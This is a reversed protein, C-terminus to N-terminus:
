EVLAAMNWMPLFIALAVGLVLIAMGFVLFPEMVTGLNKSLHAVERQYHRVVIKCMKPLEASEEGATIMRKAFGPLYTCAMLVDALRGGSNVQDIMKDTDLRLLPRGSVRGSLELCDILTLGSSLSLGFVHSFRSVGLGILIRRLYPVRHLLRDLAARGKPTAWTKKLMVIGGVLGALLLWWYARMFDSLGILMKTPLPLEVGRDSFMEAFRPVVFLMLFTVAASLSCTVILPYMLAGKVLQNTEMQEELMESLHSLIAVLNGSKEAARLTEIYVDGFVKAHAQLADTITDGAVIRRSIDTIVRALARNPEQEAISDLGDAIPIRAEILVSLQYTFHAVDRTRIRKGRRGYGKGKTRRLKLPTLGAATLKRFAEDQSVASTYGRSNAGFRDLARYEFTLQSM